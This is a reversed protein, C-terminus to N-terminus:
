AGIERTCLPPCSLFSLCYAPLSGSGTRGPGAECPLSSAALYLIHSGFVRGWTIHIVGLLDGAPRPGSAEKCSAKGRGKHPEM